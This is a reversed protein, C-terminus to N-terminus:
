VFPVQKFNQNLLQLNGFLLKLEAQLIQASDILIDGRLDQPLVYMAHKTREAKARKELRKQNKSFAKGWYVASRRDRM